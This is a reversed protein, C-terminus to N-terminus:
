VLQGLGFSKRCIFVLGFVASPIPNLFIRLFVQFLRKSDGIQVKIAKMQSEFTSIFQSGNAFLNGAFIAPRRTQKPDDWPHPTPKASRLILDYIKLNGPSL